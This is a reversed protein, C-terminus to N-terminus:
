QEWSKSGFVYVWFYNTFQNMNKSKFSTIKRWFQYESLNNIYTLFFDIGLVRKEEKKWKENENM